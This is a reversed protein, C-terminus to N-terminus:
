AALEALMLGFGPLTIVTKKIKHLNPKLWAKVHKLLRPAPEGNLRIRSRHLAFYDRRSAEGEMRGPWIGSRFFSKGVKLEVTVLCLILKM